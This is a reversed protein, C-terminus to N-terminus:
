AKPPGAERQRAQELEEETADRIKAIKIEFTLEIGALPHNADLVVADDEIHVITVLRANGEQDQVPFQLGLQFDLKGEFAEKPVRNLLQENRPGYAKEPPVVVTLEAGEDKGELAEELGPVIGKHGHLYELPPRGESSDIVNGDPDTLKYEFAVIQDKTIPM